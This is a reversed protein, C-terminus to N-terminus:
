WAGIKKPKLEADHQKGCRTCELRISKGFGIFRDPPKRYGYDPCVWRHLGLMCSFYRM